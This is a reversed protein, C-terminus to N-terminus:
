SRSRNRQVLRRELFPSTRTNKKEKGKTLAWEHMYTGFDAQNTRHLGVQFDIQQQQKISLQIRVQGVQLLFSKLKKLQFDNLRCVRALAITQSTTLAVAQTSLKRKRGVMVYTDPHSKALQRLMGEVRDPTNLMTAVWKTKQAEEEFSKISQTSPPLVVLLKRGNRHELQFVREKKQHIRKHLLSQLVVEEQLEALFENTTTTTETVQNAEDDLMLQDDDYQLCEVVDDDDDLVVPPHCAAFGATPTVFNVGEHEPASSTPEPVVLPRIKKNKEDIEDNNEFLSLKELASRLIEKAAANVCSTIMRDLARWHRPVITKKNNKVADQILEKIYDLLLNKPSIYQNSQQKSKPKKNGENTDDEQHNQGVDLLKPLSGRQSKTRLNRFHTGEIPHHVLTLSEDYYDKPKLMSDVGGGIKIFYEKKGNFQFTTWDSRSLVSMFKEFNNKSLNDKKGTYIKCLRLVVKLQDEEVGLFKCLSNPANSSLRWFYCNCNSAASNITTALEEM